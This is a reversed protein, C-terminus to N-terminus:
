LSLAPTTAAFAIEYWGIWFTCEAARFNQVISPQLTFQM